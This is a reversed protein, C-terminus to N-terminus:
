TKSANDPANINTLKASKAFDKKAGKHDGLIDRSIGRNNYVEADNPNLKIAKDFDEIAGEHDGLTGRTAGRNNYASVYSPNIEIAKDCDEIAGEHDGLAGRTGGRNNYAEAFNPNLELAKNYNEIAGKHDDLKGSAIGRSYHANAYNPNLVITKDFDEKAGKHDSLHGRANGRAYYAKDYNGDLKISASYYTIAREIEQRQHADVGLSFYDETNYETYPKDHANAIAFGSMDRFLNVESINHNKELAEIINAKNNKDIIISEYHKKEIQPKGFIFVSQQIIIRNNIDRPQWKWLNEEKFFSIIENKQRKSGVIQFLDTNDARMGIVKGDKGLNDEDKCAFWLATLPSQTFDILCTAAGYHQLDALLELDCLEM